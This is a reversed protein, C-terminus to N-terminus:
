VTFKTGLENDAFSFASPHFNSYSPRVAFPQRPAVNVVNGLFPHSYAFPTICTSGDSPLSSDPPPSTTVLSIYLAKSKDKSNLIVGPALLPTLYKTVSSSFVCPEAMPKSYWTRSSLNCGSALSPRSPSRVSADNYSRIGALFCSRKTCGIPAHFIPRM